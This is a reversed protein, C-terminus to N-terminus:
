RAGGFIAMALETPGPVSWEQLGVIETKRLRPECGVRDVSINSAESRDFCDERLPRRSAFVRVPRAWGDSM